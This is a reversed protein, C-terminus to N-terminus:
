GGKIARSIKLTDLTMQRLVNCMQRNQYASDLAGVALAPGSAGPTGPELEAYHGDPIQRRFPPARGGPRRGV